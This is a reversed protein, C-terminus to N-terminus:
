RPPELWPPLPGGIARLWSEVAAREVKTHERRQQNEEEVRQMDAISTYRQAPLPVLEGPLEGAEVAERLLRSWEVRSAGGAAELLLALERVSLTGPLAPLHLRVACLRECFPTM